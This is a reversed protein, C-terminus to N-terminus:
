EPKQKPTLKGGKLTFEQKEGKWTKLSVVANPVEDVKSGLMDNLNVSSQTMENIVENEGRLSLSLVGFTSAFQVRKSDETNMLLTVTSPLPVEEGAKEDFKTKREASLVEADQVIVKLTRQNNVTTIWVVDVRAGPRAWGEVGSRADVSITVARFGPPISRTLSNSHSGLTLADASFPVNAKLQYVTTTHKIRNQDFLVVDKPLDAIPRQEVRFMSSDTKVGAPIDNIPIMVAKMPIAVVAKNEFSSGATQILLLALLLLILTAPILIKMTNERQKVVHNMAGFAM